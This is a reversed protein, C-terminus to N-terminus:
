WEVGVRAGWTFGGTTRISEDAWDWGVQPGLDLVVGSRLEREFPIGLSIGGHHFGFSRGEGVTTSSAVARWNSWAVVAEIDVSARVHFRKELSLLQAFGFAALTGHYRTFDQAIEVFPRVAIGQTEWEIIGDYRVRVEESHSEQQDGDPFFSQRYVLRLFHDGGSDLKRAGTLTLAVDDADPHVSRDCMLFGGEADFFLGWAGDSTTAYGALGFGVYPSVSWDDGRDYGRYLRRSAVEIGGRLFDQAGVSVAFLSCTLALLFRAYRLTM